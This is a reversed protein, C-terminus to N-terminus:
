LHTIGTAVIGAAEYVGEGHFVTSVIRTLRARADRETETRIGRQFGYALMGRAMLVVPKNGGIVPLVGDDVVYPTVGYLDRTLAGERIVSDTGFTAANNLVADDFLDDMETAEGLMVLGRRRLRTPIKKRMGRFLALDVKAATADKATNRGAILAAGLDLEIRDSISRAVKRGALRNLDQDSQVQARDYWAISKGAEKILLSFGDSGMKDDVLPVTEAVNDAPAVADEMVVRIKSGPQGEIGPFVAALGTLVNGPEGLQDYLASSIFEPIFEPIDTTATVAM